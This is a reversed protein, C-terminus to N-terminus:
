VSPSIFEKGDMLPVLCLSAPMGPEGGSRTAGGGPQRKWGRQGLAMGIQEFTAGSVLDM